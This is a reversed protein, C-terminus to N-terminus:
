LTTETVKEVLAHATILPDLRDAVFAWLRMDEPKMQVEERKAKLKKACLDCLLIHHILSITNRHIRSMERAVKNGGSLKGVQSFLYRHHRENKTCPYFRLCEPRSKPDEGWGPMFSIQEKEDDSSCLELKRMYILARQAYEQEKIGEAQCSHCQLRNLISRLMAASKADQEAKKEAAIREKEKQADKEKQRIIEVKETTEEHSRCARAGTEKNVLFSKRKSVSDGCISCPFTKAPM